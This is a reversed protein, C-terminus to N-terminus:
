KRPATTSGITGLGTRRPGEGAIRAAVSVSMTAAAAEIPKRSTRPPIANGAEVPCVPSTAAEGGAERAASGVAEGDGAGLGVSVALRVGLGVEDGTVGVPAGDGVTAGAGVGLGAAVLL